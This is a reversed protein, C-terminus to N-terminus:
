KGASPWRPCTNIEWIYKLTKGIIGRIYKEVRTNQIKIQKLFRNGNIKM